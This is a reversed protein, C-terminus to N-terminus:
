AKEDGRHTTTRKRPVTRGADICARCRRQNPQEPRFTAGCAACIREHCTAAYTKHMLRALVVATECTERDHYEIHEHCVVAHESRTMLVLNEPAFNERDHDAFVVISGDPVPRGNAREWALRHKPVWNDHASRPDRKRAAVKVEVYGDKSVRESGLPQHGNHPMQGRRFQTARSREQSEPPMFEDWTRGKNAPEHGPEFRGGHTGSRVGLAHKANGIQSETLGVGWADLFHARIEGETHGPVYAAFQGRMEDTWTM